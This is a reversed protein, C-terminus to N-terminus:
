QKQLSITPRNERKKKDEMEENTKNNNVTINEEYTLKDKKKKERCEICQKYEKNTKENMGFNERPLLQKCGGKCLQLGEM